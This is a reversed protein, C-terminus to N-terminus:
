ETALQLKKFLTESDHDETNSDKPKKVHILLLCLLGVVLTLGATTLFMGTRNWNMLTEFVPPGAAVGLFRVSGYLSTVFGRRASGVSGTILSNLCPLVLGTGISSIVLIAIFPFLKTFFSLTAFSITMFLFGLIILKKMRSLDKGIKSGTTLSTIMMFLLPIALITGKLVGDINYQTELTDSLYFLIGFLTFLCTAGALYATVLWRGEHKFVSLLGKAYQGVPPAEHKKKKEKVFFATLLLSILVFVPFGWFPGYWVLLALLSGVIPSLVKGFGNSAEVIGLVKSQEGGKFLDGTLAMAIPATGAAGIGQLGRGVMIWPYANGFWAAAVGALLGGIGYLTLAPIIISKRTFRDSMYGLIPISIAATISFITITLSAQFASVGLESEMQPLIPILMSNGLTMILPISGIALIVFGKGKSAM